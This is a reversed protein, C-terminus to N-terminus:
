GPEGGHRTVTPYPRQNRKVAEPHYECSIGRGDDQVSVSNDDHHGSLILFLPRSPKMLPM